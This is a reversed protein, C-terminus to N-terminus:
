SSSVNPTNPNNEVLWDVLWKKADIPKEECLANLGKELTPHINKALWDEAENKNPLPEVPVEPFFFQIEAQAQSVTASGHVVNKILDQGYLARLSDPSTTKADSPNEPGMMTQWRKIADAGAIELAIVPGSSMHAVFLPWTHKGVQDSFLDTVQESTLEVKLERQISFGTHEIATRLSPYYDLGDPKILALTRQLQNM